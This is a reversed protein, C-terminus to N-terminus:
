FSFGAAHLESKGGFHINVRDLSESNQVSFLVIHNYQPSFLVHLILTVALVRDDM